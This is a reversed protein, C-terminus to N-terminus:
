KSYKYMKSAFIHLLYQIHVKKESIIEIKTVSNFCVLSNFSSFYRTSFGFICVFSLKNLFLLWANARCGYGFANKKINLM